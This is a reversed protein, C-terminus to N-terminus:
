FTKKGIEFLVRQKYMNRDSDYRQQDLLFLLILVNIAFYLMLFCMFYQGHPCPDWDRYAVGDQPVGLLPYSITNSIWTEETAWVTHAVSTVHIELVIENLDYFRCLTYYL